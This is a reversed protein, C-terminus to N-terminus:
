KSAFCALSKRAESCDLEMQAVLDDISDFKIEPRLYKVLSVDITEGYIDGDFEFIFTELNPSFNGFTPKIGISAAGQYHGRYKGTLIEVMVAYVGYRPIVVGRFEVNATPYGINRGVQLGKEVIGTVKHWRGLCDRALEPNGESLASRVASSSYTLDSKSLKPLVTVEFGHTHGQAIIQDTNGERGKGFRFDEGVVIQSVRLGEVLVQNVFGKASLNALNNDFPIEFLVDFGYTSILEARTESTVLQFTPSAPSFYMRPHPKFTLISSPVKKRTALERTIAFVKQHGQHIGDFNGIAVVSRTYDKPISKYTDFKKM